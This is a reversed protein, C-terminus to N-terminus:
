SGSAPQPCETCAELALFRPAVSSRPSETPFHPEIQIADLGTSDKSLQTETSRNCHQRGVGSPSPSVGGVVIGSVLM